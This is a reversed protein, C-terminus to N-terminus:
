GLVRWMVSTNLEEDSHAYDRRLFRLMYLDLLFVITQTKLSHPEVPTPAEATQEPSRTISAPRTRPGGITTGSCAEKWSGTGWWAVSGTEHGADCPLPEGVVFPWPPRSTSHRGQWLLWDVLMTRSVLVTRAYQHWYSWNSVTRNSQSTLTMICLIHQGPSPWVESVKIALSVSRGISREGM